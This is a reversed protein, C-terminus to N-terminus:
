NVTRPNIKLSAKLGEIENIISSKTLEPFYYLLDQLAHLAFFPMNNEKWFLHEAKLSKKALTRYEKETLLSAKRFYSAWLYATYNNDTDNLKEIFDYLYLEDFLEPEVSNLSRIITKSRPMKLKNLEQVDISQAGLEAHTNINDFTNLPLNNMKLIATSDYVRLTPAIRMLVDARALPLEEFQKPFYIKSGYHALLPEIMGIESQFFSVGDDCVKMSKLLSLLLFPRDSPLFQVTNGELNRLTTSIGLMVGTFSSRKDDIVFEIENLLNYQQLIKKYEEMRPITNVSLVVKDYVSKDYVSKSRRILNVLLPENNVKVLIKDRWKTNQKQYRRSLGGVLIVLVPKSM